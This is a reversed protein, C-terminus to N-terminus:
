QGGDLQSGPRALAAAEFQADRAFRRQGPSAVRIFAYPGSRHIEHGDDLLGCPKGTDACRAKCQKVFRKPTGDPELAKGLKALAKAEIQRVRERVINLMTATQELTAGGTDAVDLSCTCPLEDLERDGFNLKLSGKKGVDLYTNYRCGVYPCPRPVKECDGRTKPRPEDVPPEDVIHAIRAAAALQRRSLTKSGAEPWQEPNLSPAEPSTAPSSPATASEVLTPVAPKAPAPLRARELAAKAAAQRQRWKALAEPTM